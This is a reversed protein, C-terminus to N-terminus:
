RRAGYSAGIIYAQGNTACLDSRAGGTHTHPPPTHTHTHLSCPACWSRPGQKGDARCAAASPGGARARAGIARPLGAARGVLRVCLCSCRCVSSGSPDFTVVAFLGSAVMLALAVSWRRSFRRRWCCTMACAVLRRACSPALLRCVCGSAPRTAAETEPRVSGYTGAAMRGRIAGAAQQPTFSDFPWFFVFIPDIAPGRRLPPARPAPTTTAIM